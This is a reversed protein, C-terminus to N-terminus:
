RLRAAWAWSVSSFRRPLDFYATAQGTRMLLFAFQLKVFPITICFAALSLFVVPLALRWDARTALSTSLLVPQEGFPDASM